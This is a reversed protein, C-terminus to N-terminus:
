SGYFPNEPIVNWEIKKESAVSFNRALKVLPKISPDKDKNRYSRAAQSSPLVFTM